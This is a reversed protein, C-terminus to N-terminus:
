MNGTRDVLSFKSATTQLPNRVSVHNGWSTGAVTKGQNYNFLWWYVIDLKGNDGQVVVVYTTVGTEGPYSGAFWDQTDSPQNLDARTRLCATTQDNNAGLKIAEQALVNRDLAGTFFDAPFGNAVTQVIMHPLFADITTPWYDEDVNLMM